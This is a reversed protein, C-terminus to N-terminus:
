EESKLGGQFANAAFPRIGTSEYDRRMEAPAPASRDRRPLAPVPLGRFAGAISFVRGHPWAGLAGCQHMALTLGADSGEVTRRVTSPTGQAALAEFNV